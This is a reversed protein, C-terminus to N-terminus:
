TSGQATNVGPFYHVRVHDGRANVGVFAFDLLEWIRPDVDELERNELEFVIGGARTDEGRVFRGDLDDRGALAIRLGNEGVRRHAAGVFVRYHWMPMRLQDNRRLYRSTVAGVAGQRDVGVM